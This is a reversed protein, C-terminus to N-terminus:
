SNIYGIYYRELNFNIFILKIYNKLLYTYRNKTYIKISAGLLAQKLHPSSLSAAPQHLKRFVRLRFIKFCKELGKLINRRKKTIFIFLM